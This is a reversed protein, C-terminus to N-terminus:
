ESALDPTPQTLPPTRPLARVMSLIEHRMNDAIWLEHENEINQLFEPEFEDIAYEIQAKTPIGSAAHDRLVSVILAKADEAQDDHDFELGLLWVFAEVDAAAIKDAIENANM